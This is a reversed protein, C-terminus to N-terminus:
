QERSLLQPLVRGSDTLLEGPVWCRLFRQYFVGTSNLPSVSMVRVQQLLLAACSKELGEQWERQQMLSWSRPEHGAAGCCVIPFPRMSRNRAKEDTFVLDGILNCCQWYDYGCTGQRGM